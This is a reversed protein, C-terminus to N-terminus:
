EMLLNTRTRNTQITSIKVLFSHLTQDASTLDTCNTLVTQFAYIDYEM